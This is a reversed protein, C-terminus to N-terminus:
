HVLWDVIDYKTEHMNLTDRAAPDIKGYKVGVNGTLYEGIPIQCKDNM